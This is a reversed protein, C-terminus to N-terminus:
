KFYYAQFTWSLTALCTLAVAMIAYYTSRDEEENGLVAETDTKDVKEISGFSLLAGAGLMLFM